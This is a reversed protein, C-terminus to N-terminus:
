SRVIKGAANTELSESFRIRAPVAERELGGRCAALIAAQLADRDAEPDAPVVTAILLAGTIPSRKASVSALGVGPVAAIVREM